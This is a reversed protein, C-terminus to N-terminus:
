QRFRRLYRCGPAVYRISQLFFVWGTILPNENNVWDQRVGRRKTMLVPLVERRESQESPIGSREVERGLHTSYFIWEWWSPSFPNKQQGM